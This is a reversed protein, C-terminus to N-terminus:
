STSYPSIQLFSKLSQDYIASLRGYTVPGENFESSSEQRRFHLLEQITPWGSRPFSKEKTASTNIEDVLRLM